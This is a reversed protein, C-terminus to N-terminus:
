KRALDGREASERAAAGYIGKSMTSTSDELLKRYVAARLAHAERSAPEADAAWDVFHAALRSDGAALLAQARALM